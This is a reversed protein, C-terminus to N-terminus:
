NGKEAEIEAQGQAAVKDALATVDDRFLKTEVAAKVNEPSFEDDLNWGLLLANRIVHKVARETIDPLAKHEETANDWFDKQAAAHLTSGLGRVKLRLGPVNPSDMWAGDERRRDAQIIADLKL